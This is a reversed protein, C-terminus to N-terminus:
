ATRGQHALLLLGVVARFRRFNCPAAFRIHALCRGVREKPLLFWRGGFPLLAGNCEQEDRKDAPNNEGIQIVEGGRGCDSFEETEAGIKAGVDGTPYSNPEEKAFM